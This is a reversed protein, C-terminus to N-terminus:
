HESKQDLTSFQDNPTFFVSTIESSPIELTRITKAMESQTFQAHNNLRLSLTVASVGIAEAFNAQTRYKMRILGRLRSYDWLM